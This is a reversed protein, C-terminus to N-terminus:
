LIISVIKYVSFLIYVYKLVGKAKGEIINPEIFKHIYHGFIIVMVAKWVILCGCNLRECVLVILNGESSGCVISDHAYM